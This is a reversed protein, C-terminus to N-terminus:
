EIRLCQVRHTLLSTPYGSNISAAAAAAAAAATAVSSAASYVATTPATVHRSSALASSSSSWSLVPRCSYDPQIPPTNYLPTRSCSNNVPVIVPRQHPFHKQHYAIFESNSPPTYLRKFSRQLPSPSAEDHSVRKVAHIAASANISSATTTTTTTIPNNNNNNRNLNHPMSPSTALPPLSTSSPFLKIGLRAPTLVPRMIRALPLWNQLQAVWAFYCQDNVAINHNLATLFEREM